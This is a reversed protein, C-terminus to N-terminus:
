LLGLVVAVTNNIIHLLIPAWLSRFKVRLMGLLLGSLFLPAFYAIDVHFAAFFFSALLVGKITGIRRVLAQQLFGRFFVEEAIPGVVAVDFALLFLMFWGAAKADLLAEYIDEERYSAPDIGALSTTLEILWEDLFFIAIYIGICGLIMGWYSTPRQFGLFSLNRRYLVLGVGVMLLSPLLMDYWSLTEAEIAGPVFLMVGIEVLSILIFMWAVYFALETFGIDRPLIRREYHFKTIFGTIIFTILSVFGIFLAILFTLAVILSVDEEESEVIKWLGEETQVWEMMLFGSFALSFFCFLLGWAGLTRLRRAFSYGGNIQQITEMGAVEGIEKIRYFMM